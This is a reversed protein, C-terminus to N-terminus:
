IQENKYVEKIEPIIEELEKISLRDLKGKSKSNKKLVIETMKRIDKGFIYRYIEAYLEGRTKMIMRKLNTYAPPISGGDVFDKFLSENVRKTPKFIRCDLSATADEVM